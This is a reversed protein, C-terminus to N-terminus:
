RRSSGISTSMTACGLRVASSSVRPHGAADGAVGFARNAPAAPLRTALRSAPDPLRRAAMHLDTGTFGSSEAGLKFRRSRSGAGLALILRQKRRRRVSSRPPVPRARYRVAAIGDQTAALQKRRASRLRPRLWSTVYRATRSQPEPEVSSTPIVPDSPSEAPLRADRAPIANSDRMANPRYTWSTGCLGALAPNTTEAPFVESVGTKGPTAKAEPSARLTPGVSALSRPPLLPRVSHRGLVRRDAATGRARALLRTAPPLPRTSAVVVVVDRVLLVLSFRLSAAAASRRRGRDAPDAACLHTVHLTEFIDRNRLSM